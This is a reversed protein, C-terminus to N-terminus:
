RGPSFDKREERLKHLFDLGEQGGETFALPLIIADPSFDPDLLLFLGKKPNKEISFDVPLMAKNREIEDLSCIPSAVAFLHFGNERTSAEAAEPKKFHAKIKDLFQDLSNLFDEECASPSFHEIRKVLEQEMEKCLASVEGFGFSGANGAIKHVEGRLATLSDTDKKQKLAEILDSLLQIKQSITEEYEHQLQSLVDKQKM